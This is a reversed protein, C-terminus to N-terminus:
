QRTLTLAGREHHIPLDAIQRRILALPSSDGGAMAIRLRDGLLSQSAGDRVFGETYALLAEGQCMRFTESVFQADIHSTLPEGRGDVLPRYGYKNAIIATIAGASAVQGEGSEPDVRAYLMSVLQEGTSTQWLTDSVRQILEAPTHRYGTHAALAARAIAANMAGRASSDVAEAIALMMTGDPLVDWNHWGTAWRRPSEIMGDVSWQAALNAGIPLSEFQWQSVDDIPAETPQLRQTAANSLLSLQMSIHAAALRAAASEAIGFKATENRFLWLTGIPVDNSELVVCIGAAFPEPCNWTDIPADHLDDIAVVGQVMAELDARSGRLPRAPQELRKLPLGFVARAKLNETDDDLMYVAAADCRCAAAANALTSEMADAAATRDAESSLIAVRAALEVEQQRMSDRNNQLEEALRSASEALLTAASKSVADSQDALPDVDGGIAPLLELMGGNRSCRQDLRWGTVNSYTNWFQNIADPVIGQDERASVNEERHIKLYNPITKTVTNGPPHIDVRLHRGDKGDFEEHVFQGTRRSVPRRQLTADVDTM